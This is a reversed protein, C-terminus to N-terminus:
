RGVGGGFASSRACARRRVPAPGCPTRVMGSCRTSRTDANPGGLGALSPRLHRADRGRHRARAASHRGEGVRWSPDPPQRLLPAPRPLDHRASGRRLLPLGGCGRSTTGASRPARSPPSCSSSWRAQPGGPRTAVSSRRRPRRSRLSTRPSRKSPSGPLPIDGKSSRGGTGANSPMGPLQLRLTEMVWNSAAAARRTDLVESSIECKGRDLARRPATDDRDFGNLMEAAVAPGRGAARISFNLYSPGM